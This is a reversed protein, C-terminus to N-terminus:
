DLGFDRQGKTKELQEVRPWARSKGPMLTSTLSLSGPMCSLKVSAAQFRLPLMSAKRAVISTFRRVRALGAGANVRFGQERIMLTFNEDFQCGRPM